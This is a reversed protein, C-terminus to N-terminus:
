DCRDIDAMQCLTCLTDILSIINRAEDDYHLSAKVMDRNEKTAIATTYRDAYSIQVTWRHLVMGQINQHPPRMACAALTEREIKDLEKDEMLM